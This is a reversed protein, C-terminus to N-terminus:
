LRPGRRKSVAEGTVSDLRHNHALRVRIRLDSLLDQYWQQSTFINSSNDFVQASMSWDPSIVWEEGRKRNTATLQKSKRKFIDDWTQDLHLSCIKDEYLLVLVDSSVEQKNTKGSVGRILLQTPWGNENMVCSLAMLNVNTSGKLLEANKILLGMDIPWDPTMDRKEKM